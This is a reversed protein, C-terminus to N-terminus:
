PHERVYEEFAPTRSWYQIGWNEFNWQDSYVNCEYDVYYLTGDRLVFNTPFYDINVGGAYLRVCLKRIQELYRPDLRDGRVLELATEGRIYEKRIRETEADAELLGPMPVGLGLLTQYDRLESQFKDGFQYYDCPEHHLQKLVCEGDDGVALYSYGGKGKGLLKRIQYERGNVSLTQPTDM